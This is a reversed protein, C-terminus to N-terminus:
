YRYSNFEFYTVTPIMQVPVRQTRLSSFSEFFNRSLTVRKVLDQLLKVRKIPTIKCVVVTCRIVYQIYLVNVRHLLDKHSLGNVYFHHNGVIAAPLTSCSTDVM